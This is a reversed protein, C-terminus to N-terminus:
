QTWVWLLVLLFVYLLFPSSPLSLPTHTSQPSIIVCLHPSGVAPHTTHLTMYLVHLSSSTLAHLSECLALSLTLRYEGQFGTAKRLINFPLILM